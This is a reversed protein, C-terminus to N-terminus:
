IRLRATRAYLPPSSGHHTADPRFAKVVLPKRAIAPDAEAVTWTAAGSWSPVNAAPHDLTQVASQCHHKCLLLVPDPQKEHCPADHSAAGHNSAERSSDNHLATDHTSAPLDAIGTSTSQSVSVSMPVPVPVPLVAGSVHMSVMAFAAIFAGLLIRTARRLTTSRIM